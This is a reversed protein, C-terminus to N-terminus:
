ESKQGPPGHVDGQLSSGDFHELDLGVLDFGVDDLRATVQPHATM